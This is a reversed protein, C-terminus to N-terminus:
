PVVNLGLRQVMTYAEGMKMQIWCLKLPQNILFPVIDIGSLLDHNEVFM